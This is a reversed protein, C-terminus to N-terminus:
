VAHVRLERRRLCQLLPCTMLTTVLAMVVLITFMKASILNLELGANLVILEVLGRTNMLVGLTLAEPWRYGFWRAAVATGGCKGATALVIVLACLGWDHPSNLLNIQTRLGTFAFFTPLLLIKVWKEARHALPDGVMGAKPVIAGLLFAGFIAHIGIWDAVYASGALLVLLLIWGRTQM